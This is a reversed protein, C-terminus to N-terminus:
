LFHQGVYHNNYEAPECHSSLLNIYLINRFYVTAKYGHQQLVSCFGRQDQVMVPAVREGKRGARLMWQQSKAREGGKDRGEGVEEEAEAEGGM